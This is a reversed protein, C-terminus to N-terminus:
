RPLALAYLAYRRILHGYRESLNISRNSEHMLAHIVRTCGLRLAEAHFEELLVAGLGALRREPDVALTKLVATGPAPSAPYGFVFGVVKGERRAIRVLAPDLKSRWPRYRDLFPELPIDQYLLNDRFSIRSLAHIGALEEEFRSPDLPRIAIGLAGLRARVRDLRPDRQALDTCLTSRYAACARFGAREFQARWADPHWPEGPFPPEEGREVIWRYRDWTSGDVPGLLWRLGADAAARACATLLLAAADERGEECRYSGVFGAREGEWELGGGLWLAASAVPTGAEVCALVTDAPPWFDSGPPQPEIHV